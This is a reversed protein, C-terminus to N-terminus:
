KPLDVVKSFRWQDQVNKGIVFLENNYFYIHSALLGILHSVEQTITDTNWRVITSGQFAVITSTYLKTGGEALTLSSGSQPLRNLQSFDATSVIQGSKLFIRTGDLSLQASETDEVSGHASRLVLPASSSAIDLKFLASPSINSFEFYLYLGDDGIFRIRENYFINNSGVKTLNGLSADMKIIESTSIYIDGSKSVHIDRVADSGTLSSMSIRTMFTLTPTSFVDIFNAGSYVMYLKSFDNSIAVRYPFYNLDLDRVQTLSSASIVFIKSVDRTVIYFIGSSKDLAFDGDEARPLVVSQGPELRLKESEVSNGQTTTTKVFYEYIVGITSTADTFFNSNPDQIQSITSYNNFGWRSRYVTYQQHYPSENKTWRIVAAKGENLDGTSVVPLLSYCDFNVTLKGISAQVVNLVNTSGSTFRSSALGFFTQSSTPTLSGSGSIVKFEVTENLVLNGFQDSVRAVLNAPLAGGALSEQNNGSAIEIKAPRGSNVEFNVFLPKELLSEAQIKLQVLERKSSLLIKTSSIGNIDTISVSDTRTASGKNITFYVKVGQIGVSDADTVKVRILESNNDGAIFSTRIKGQLFVYTPVRIKQEEKCSVLFGFFFIIHLVRKSIV